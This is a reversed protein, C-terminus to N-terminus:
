NDSLGLADSLGPVSSTMNKLGLAFASDGGCSVTM